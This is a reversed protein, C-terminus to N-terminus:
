KKHSYAIKPGKRMIISINKNHNPNNQGYPQELTRLYFFYSNRTAVRIKEDKAWVIPAKRRGTACRGTAAV